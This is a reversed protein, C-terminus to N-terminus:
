ILDLPSDILAPMDDIWVNVFIKQEEAVKRKYQRCCFIVPVLKGISNLVPNAEEPTNNRLTICYVTHGAKQFLKIIEDFTKPDKTYTADFDVSIIM